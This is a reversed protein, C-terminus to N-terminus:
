PCEVRAGYTMCCISIQCESKGLSNDPLRHWQKLFGINWIQFTCHCHHYLCLMRWRFEFFSTAHHRVTVRHALFALNIKKWKVDWKNKCIHAAWIDNWKSVFTPLLEMWRSPCLLLMVKMFRHCLATLWFTLIIYNHGRHLSHDTYRKSYFPM